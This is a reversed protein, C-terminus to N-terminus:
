DICQLLRVLKEHPVCWTCEETDYLIGFVVGSKSPGFSKDPNDRPALQVGTLAAFKSFTKDFHQLAELSLSAACIDDLHQCTMQIPFQAGRCVLDLLM